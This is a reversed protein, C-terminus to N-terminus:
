AGSLALARKAAVSVAVEASKPELRSTAPSTEVLSPDFVAIRSAMEPSISSQMKGLFVWDTTCGTIRCFQVLFMEDPFNRGREYANLTQPSIELERAVAAANEKYAYRAAKLRRAMLARLESSKFTKGKSMRCITGTLLSGSSLCNASATITM